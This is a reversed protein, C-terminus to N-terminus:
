EVGEFQHDANPNGPEDAHGNPGDNNPVESGTEETGTETGSEGAGNDPATQDGSQVTDSDPAQQRAITQTKAAAPKAHVAKHSSSSSNAIAIGGVSMSAIVAAVVGAIKARYRNSM